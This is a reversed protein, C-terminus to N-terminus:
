RYATLPIVNQAAHDRFILESGDQSVLIDVNGELVSDLILAHLRVSRAWELARTLGPSPALTSTRLVAQRLAAYEAPALVDAASGRAHRRAPPSAGPDRRLTHNSRSMPM